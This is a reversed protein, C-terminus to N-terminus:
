LSKVQVKRWKIAGGVINNAGMAYQLAIPGAPFKGDSIDVTTQGNFKVILRPGRATIEFTNWRGGARYILPVPVKAFDVISATAYEPAPRQDFINVEYSSDATIKSPNLARIFIGSNTTDEAYFEAYLEFDRYPSKSVLFGGKGRDAVIAGGEARWNAEGIATFNEMGRTGDILSVWGTDAGRQTACGVLTLATFLLVAAIRKM